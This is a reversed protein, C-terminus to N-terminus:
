KTPTIAATIESFKFYTSGETNHSKLTGGKTWRNLTADSIGLFIMVEDRSITEKDKLQDFTLPSPKSEELFDFSKTPAASRNLYKNRVASAKDDEELYDLLELYKGLKLDDEWILEEEM